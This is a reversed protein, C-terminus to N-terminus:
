AAVGAPLMGRRLLAGRIEAVVSAGHWDNVKRLEGETQWAGEWWLRLTDGTVQYLYRAMGFSGTAEAKAKELIATAWNTLAQAAQRRSVFTGFEEGTRLKATWRCKAVQAVTGVPGMGTDVRYGSPVKVCRM